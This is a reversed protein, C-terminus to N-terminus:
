YALYIAPRVTIVIKQTTGAGAAKEPYLPAISPFGGYINVCSGITNAKNQRIWWACGSQKAGKDKAYKTPTAILREDNVNTEMSGSYKRLEEESLVFVKDTTGNSPSNTDAIQAQEEATFSTNLFDGNLWSRLYCNDWDVSGNEDNHYPQCDLAYKSLLLLKGDSNEWVEWEIPEQGNDPNGDQEFSGFEIIDGPVVSAYPSEEEFSLGLAELEAEDLLGCSIVYLQLGIRTFTITDVVEGDEGTTREGQHSKFDTSYLSKEIKFKEPGNGIDAVIYEPFWHSVNEHYQIEPDNHLDMAWQYVKDNHNDLIAQISAKDFKATAPDIGTGDKDIYYVLLPEVEPYEVGTVNYFDSIAIVSAKDLTANGDKITVAEKDKLELSQGQGYSVEVVGKDVFVHTSADAPDYTVAFQTGRISTTANPTIVEFSSNDNLKNDVEFYARGEQLDIRVNGKEEDGDAKVEFKSNATVMM